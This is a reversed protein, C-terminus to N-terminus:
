SCWCRPWAASWCEGRCCVCGSPRAQGTQRLLANLKAQDARSSPNLDLVIRYQQIADPVQGQKEYVLGLLSHAATSEPRIALAGQCALAAEGLNGAEYALFAMDLLQQLKADDDDADPAAAM